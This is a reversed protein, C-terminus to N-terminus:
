MPWARSLIEKGIYGCPGMSCIPTVASSMVNAWLQYSLQQSFGEYPGLIRMCLTM